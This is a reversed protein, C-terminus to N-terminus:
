CEDLRITYSCCITVLVRGSIVFIESIVIIEITAYWLYNHFCFTREQASSKRAAEPQSARARIAQQSFLQIKAGSVQLKLGEEMQMFAFALDKQGCASSAISLQSIRRAKAKALM